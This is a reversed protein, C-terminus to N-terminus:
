SGRVGERRRRRLKEYVVMEADYKRMDTRLHEDLVVGEETLKQRQLEAAEPDPISIRGYSNIVRWWPVRTGAQLMHLAYGVARARGPRGCQRAVGGYSMVRGKPILRVVEYVQEYFSPIQM